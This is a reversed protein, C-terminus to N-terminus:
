DKNELKKIHMKCTHIQQYFYGTHQVLCAILIQEAMLHVGKHRFESVAEFIRKAMEFKADAQESDFINELEGKMLVELKASVLCDNLEGLNEIITSKLMMNIRQFSELEEQATLDNKNM